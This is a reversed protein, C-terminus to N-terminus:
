YKDQKNNWSTTRSLSKTEIGLSIPSNVFNLSSCMWFLLNVTKGGSSPLINKIFHKHIYWPTLFTSNKTKLRQALSFDNKVRLVISCEVYYVKLKKKLNNPNPWGLVYTLLQSYDMSWLSLQDVQEQSM